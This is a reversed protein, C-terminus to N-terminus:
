TTSPRNRRNNQRQPSGRTLSGHPPPPQTRSTGAEERAIKPAQGQNIQCPSNGAPGTLRGLERKWRAGGGGGPTGPGCHGPQAGARLKQGRGKRLPPWSRSPSRRPSRGASWFTTHPSSGHDSRRFQEEPGPGPARGKRDPLWAQRSAGSQESTYSSHKRRRIGQM